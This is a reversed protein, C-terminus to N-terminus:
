SLWMSNHSLRIQLVYISWLLEESARDLKSAMDVLTAWEVAVISGDRFDKIVEVMGVREIVSRQTVLDRLEAEVHTLRHSSVFIICVTSLLYLHLLIRLM